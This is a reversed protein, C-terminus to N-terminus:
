RQPFGNWIGLLSELKDRSECELEYVKDKLFAMGRLSELKDRSECELEYVKDKLFAMGRLSELKDSIWCKTDGFNVMIGKEVAVRM